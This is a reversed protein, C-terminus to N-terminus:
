RLRDSKAQFDVGHRSPDAPTLTFRNSGEIVPEFQTTDGPGKIGQQKVTVLLQRGKSPNSIRYLARCIPDRVGELKIVEGPTLPIVEHRAFMGGPEPPLTKLENAHITLTDAPLANPDDSAPPFWATPWSIWGTIESVVVRTTVVVQYSFRHLNSHDGMCALHTILVLEGAEDVELRSQDTSFAYATDDNWISALGTHVTKQEITGAPIRLKLRCDTEDAPDNDDTSLFEARAIGSIVLLRRGGIGLDANIVAHNGVHNPNNVDLEIM